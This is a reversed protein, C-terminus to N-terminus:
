FPLFSKLPPFKERFYPKHNKIILFIILGSRNFNRVCISYLTVNTSNKIQPNYGLRASTTFRTQAIFSRSISVWYHGLGIEIYTPLTQVRYDVRNWLIISSRKEGEEFLAICVFFRYMSLIKHLTWNFLFSSDVFVVLSTPRLRLFDDM